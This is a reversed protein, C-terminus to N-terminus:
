KTKVKKLPKKPKKEPEIVFEVFDLSTLKKLGAFLYWVATGMFIMAPIVNVPFGITTMWGLEQNFEPTGPPSKLIYIALSFHTIMSVLFAVAVLYTCKVLLKKLEEQANAKEIKSYILDVNMVSPNLLLTKILPNKTKLSLVTALGFLFPETAGKVAFWFGNLQLLSFGGTLSVNLLGILSFFNWRRSKILDHMGYMLPFMLAVVLSWLPGLREPKSLKMLILSPLFINFILNIFINERKQPRTKKQKM